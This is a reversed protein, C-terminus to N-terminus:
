VSRLILGLFDKDFYKFILLVKNIHIHTHIMHALAHWTHLHRLLDHSFMLDRPILPVQVQCPYKPLFESRKCSCYTSKVM